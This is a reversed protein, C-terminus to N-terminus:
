CRAWRGTDTPCRVAGGLERKSVENGVDLRDNTGGRDGSSSRPLESLGRMMFLRLSLLFLFSSWADDERVFYLPGAGLVVELAMEVRM